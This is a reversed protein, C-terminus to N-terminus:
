QLRRGPRTPWNWIKDLPFQILHRRTQLDSRPRNQKLQGPWPQFDGFYAVGRESWLFQASCICKASRAIKIVYFFVIHGGFAGLIAIRVNSCKEWQFCDSFHHLSPNFFLSEGNKLFHATTKEVKLAIAVVLRRSVSEQSVNKKPESQNSEVPVHILGMWQNSPPFYWLDLSPQSSFTWASYLISM